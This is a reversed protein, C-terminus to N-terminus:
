NKHPAVCDQNVARRVALSITFVIGSVRDTNSDTFPQLNTSKSWDFDYITDLWGFFDESIQICDSYIEFDIAQINPNTLDGIVIKFNHTLLNNSVDTDIYQINVVPYSLDVLANFDDDDLTVNAGNVMAHNTFYGKISNIITNLNM